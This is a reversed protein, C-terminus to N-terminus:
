QVTGEPSPVLPDILSPGPNNLIYSHSFLLIYVKWEAHEEM